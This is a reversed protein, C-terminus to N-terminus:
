KKGVMNMLEQFFDKDMEDSPVVKDFRIKQRIIEKAQEVSDAYVTARMKRGYFEFYLTYM